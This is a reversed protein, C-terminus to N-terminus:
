IDFSPPIDYPRVVQTEAHKLAINYTATKGYVPHVLFFTQSPDVPTFGSALGYGDLGPFGGGIIVSGKATPLVIERHLHGCLYFDPSRQGYKGFLQSGSSVLRGVAHNPVGLAKDGGRLIDGHLLQFLFGQVDFLAVPQQDFNWEVNKIQSTLAQMYAYLFSDLNSFRNTTPMKHQSQWRTHNGVTTYVRVKPVFPAVNRVFQSLAHGAGYFQQFLTVKQAAEAGHNLAGDLMDGGLCLVLEPIETSVHDRLISIVGEELFKLRNLFVDFDYGGFGLTQEPKVVLGVHTDTLLLVASQPKGAGERVRRVVAPLPSYAVPALSAAMSVLQESVAAEKLARNYKRELQQYENKWYENGKVEKEEEFTAPAAEPAKELPPPAPLADAQQQRSICSRRARVADPTRSLQRAVKVNDPNARLIELEEATWPRKIIAM